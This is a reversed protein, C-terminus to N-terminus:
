EGETPPVSDIQSFTLRNVGDEHRYAPDSMFTRLFHLGLGGVPRDELSSDLDPPPIDLPDFATGRDEIRVQTLGPSRCLTIDITAGQPQAGYDVTNTFLEDLVLNLRMVDGPAIRHREGFAAVGDALDGLAALDPALRIKM